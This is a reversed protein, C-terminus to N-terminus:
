QLSQSVCNPVATLDSSAYPETRTEQVRGTLEEFSPWTRPLPGHPELKKGDPESGPNYHYIMAGDVRPFDSCIVAGEAPTLVNRAGFSLTVGADRVRKTLRTRRGAEM